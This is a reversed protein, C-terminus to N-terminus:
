IYRIDDPYSEGFRVMRGLSLQPNGGDLLSNWTKKDDHERSFIIFFVIFLSTVLTYM